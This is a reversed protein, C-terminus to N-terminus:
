TSGEKWDIGIFYDGSKM